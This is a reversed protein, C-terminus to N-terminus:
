YAVGSFPAKPYKLQFWRPAAEGDRQEQVLRDLLRSFDPDALASALKDRPVNQLVVNPHRTLAWSAPDLRRWLEDSSHNWSWRLDMALETLADLGQPPTPPSPGDPITASM